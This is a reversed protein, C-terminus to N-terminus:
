SNRADWLASIQSASLSTTTIIVEDMGGGWPEQEAGSNRAGVAMPAAETSGTYLTGSSTTVVQGGNVYLAKRVAGGHDYTAAVMAPEGSTLSGPPSISEHNAGTNSVFTIFSLRTGDRRFQWTRRPSGDASVISQPSSSGNPIIWAVISFQPSASIPFTPTNIRGGLSPRYAESGSFIGPTTRVGAATYTGDRGNGSSDAATAAGALEDLKWWAWLGPLAAVTSNWSGSPQSSARMLLQHHRLLSM